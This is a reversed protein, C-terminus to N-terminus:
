SAGGSNECPSVSASLVWTNASGYRLLSELRLGRKQCFKEACTKVAQEGGMTCSAQFAEGSVTAIYTSSYPRVNITYAIQGSAESSQGRVEPRM